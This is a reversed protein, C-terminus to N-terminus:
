YTPESGGLLSGVKGGTYRRGLSMCKTYAEPLDKLFGSNNNAYKIAWGAVKEDNFVGVDKSMLLLTDYAICQSILSIQHVSVSKKKQKLDKAVSKFVSNDM